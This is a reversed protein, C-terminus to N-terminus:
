GCRPWKAIRNEDAMPTQRGLIEVESGLMNLRLLCRLELALRYAGGTFHDHSRGCSLGRSRADGAEASWYQGDKPCESVGNTSIKEAPRLSVIYRM